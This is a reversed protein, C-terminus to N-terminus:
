ARSHNTGETRNVHPHTEHFKRYSVSWDQCLDQGKEKRKNSEIEHKIQQVLEDDAGLRCQLRNLLRELYNTHRSM